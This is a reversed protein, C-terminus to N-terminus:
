QGKGKASSILKEYWSEDRRTVRIIVRAGFSVLILGAVMPPFFLLGIDMYGGMDLRDMVLFTVGWLM